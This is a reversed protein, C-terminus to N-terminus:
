NLYWKGNTFRLKILGANLTTLVSGIIANLGGSLTLATVVTGTTITGGVLIELLQGEIPNVPLSITATAQLIAPNYVALSINDPIQWNGGTTFEVASTNGVAGSNSYRGDIRLEHANGRSSTDIGNGVAIGGQPCEGFRGFVYSNDCQIEHGFGWAASYNVGSDITHDNGYIFIYNSSDGVTSNNSAMFVGANGNGLVNGQGLITNLSNDDGLTNAVGRISNFNNGTGLVNSGQIGGIDNGFPDFFRYLTDGDDIAGTFSLNYNNLNTIQDGEFIVEQGSGFLPLIVSNGSSISLTDGSLSLTQLGAVVTDVIGVSREGEGIINYFLTDGRFYISDVTGGLSGFSTQMWKNLTDALARGTPVNAPAILQSTTIRYTADNTNGGYRIMEINLATTNSGFFMVRGVSGKLIYDYTNNSYLVKITKGEDYLGKIFVTQASVWLPVILMLLSFLRKM